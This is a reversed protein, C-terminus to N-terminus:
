SQIQAASPRGISFTNLYEIVKLQESDSLAYPEGTSGTPVLVVRKGACREILFRTNAKLSDLDLSGDRNLPTVQVVVVAQITERMVEPALAM